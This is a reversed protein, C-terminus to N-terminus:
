RLQGILEQFDTHNDLIASAATRLADVDHPKLRFSTPLANLRERETEDALGDFAIEVFHFDTDACAPKPLKGM